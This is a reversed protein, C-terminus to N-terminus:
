VRRANNVIDTYRNGSIFRIRDRHVTFASNFTKDVLPKGSPMAGLSFLKMCILIEDDDHNTEFDRTDLYM